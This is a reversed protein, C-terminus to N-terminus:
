QHQISDRDHIRIHLLKTPDAATIPKDGPPMRMNSEFDHRPQPDLAVGLLPTIVM